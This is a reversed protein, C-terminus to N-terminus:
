ERGFARKKIDWDRKLDPYALACVVLLGLILGGFMCMFVVDFM